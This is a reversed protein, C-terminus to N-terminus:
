AVIQSRVEGAHRAAADAQRHDIYLDQWAAYNLLLWIPVSHDAEGQRHQLLLRGITARNFIEPPLRGNASELFDGVMEHLGTRLWERLPVRFGQKPKRATSRPLYRRVTDRLIAKTEWGRLKLSPPLGLAFEVLRHDLLPSRVELSHAMSMRDVKVLIGDVLGSRLDAYSAKSVAPLSSRMVASIDDAYSPVQTHHLQDILDETFLQRLLDPGCSSARTLYMAEFPLRSDRLVKAVRLASYRRGAPLWQAGSQVLAPLRDGGLWRPLRRYHEAFQLAQYTTYGAFLEDGGDGSLLVTVHERALKSVHYMPLAAQDGFPEDFHRVLALLTEPLSTAVDQERLTLVHHDTQFHRAVVEADASEDWEPRDFGITFTKLPRLGAKHAYAVITSSDLGGSLFVGLPVESMLRIRVAEELLADLEEMVQKRNPRAAGGDDLNLRWYPAIQIEGDQYVLWHAAPLKRIQRFITRPEGLAGYQFYPVVSEPDPEALTPDAALIAKMESGFLLQNGRKAYFLPKKGLRDRALLLRRARQDWLAIGFMGCLDTLSDVGREEYAHVIVETDSNTRFLHGRRTLDNRLALYNYIEGNFVVQVQGDENAIPQRGGAVDIISLRRMGLGVGDSIFFGEADPGRHIIADTMRQLMPRVTSKSLDPDILGAIGCM